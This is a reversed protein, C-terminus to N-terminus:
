ASSKHDGGTDNTKEKQSRGRRATKPKSQTLLMAKLEALEAKLSALEGTSKAGGEADKIQTAYGKKSEVTIDHALEEANAFRKGNLPNIYEVTGPADHDPIKEISIRKENIYKGTDNKVVPIFQGRFQVAESWDPWIQTEGPKFTVTKGKFKEEHVHSGHNTVKAKYHRQKIEM